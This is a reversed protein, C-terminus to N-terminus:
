ISAIYKHHFIIGAFNTLLEQPPSLFRIGCVDLGSKSVLDLTHHMALPNFFLARGILVLATQFCFIIIIFFGHFSFVNVLLYLSM